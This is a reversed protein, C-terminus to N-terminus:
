QSMSVRFLLFWRGSNLAIAKSLLFKVLRIENAYGRFSNIKVMRLNHFVSSALSRSRICKHLQGSPFRAALNHRYLLNDNTLYLFYSQRYFKTKTM